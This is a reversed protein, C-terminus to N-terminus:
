FFCLMLGVRASPIVGRVGVGKLTVTAGDLQLTPNGLQLDIYSLGGRIVFSVYKSGFEFGIQGNAFLYSVERLAAKLVEDNPLGPVWTADGSFFTGADLGVLPRVYRLLSAFPSFTVGLRVGFGGGNTLAAFHVRLWRTPNALVSAGAGDPFGAELQVGWLPTEDPERGDAELPTGEVTVLPPGPTSALVSLMVLSVVM